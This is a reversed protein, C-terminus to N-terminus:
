HLQEQKYGAQIFEFANQYIHSTVKSIGAFMSPCM